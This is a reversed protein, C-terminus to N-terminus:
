VLYALLYRRTRFNKLRAAKMKILSPLAISPTFARPIEIIFNYFLTQICKRGARFNQSKVLSRRWKAGSCRRPCFLSQMESIGMSVM